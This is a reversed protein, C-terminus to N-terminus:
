GVSLIYMAGSSRTFIQYRLRVAGRRNGANARGSTCLFVRRGLQLRAGSQQMCKEGFNTSGVHMQTISTKGSHRIRQNGTVNGDTHDSRM